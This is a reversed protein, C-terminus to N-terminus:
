RNWSLFFYKVNPKATLNDLVVNHDINLLKRLKKSVVSATVSELVFRIYLSSDFTINKEDRKEPTVIIQYQFETKHM